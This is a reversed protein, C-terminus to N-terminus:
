STLCNELSALLDEWSSNCLANGILPIGLYKSPLSSRSFGLICSIHIQIARPTNFFFIHSKESNISTGSADCFDFIVCIISHAKQITPVGMIMTDDLLQSHSIPPNLGHLTSGKLFMNVVVFKILGSLVEVMIIFLFPSLPDGQQIGKLPSFPQSPVGNVLIFFFFSSTLVMVWNVWDECLGFITFLSKM